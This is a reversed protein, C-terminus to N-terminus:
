SLEGNEAHVPTAAVAAGGQQQDAYWLVWALLVAGTSVAVDALNFTPWRMAGFGIDIFDVVGRASRIRDILNGLAGACVLALALTRPRDGPQTEQYLRWLVYLAGTTLAMFIWRSYPGLHFGFAAGPNYVLVWRLGNGLVPRPPEYAGLAYVAIAKTVLDTLLLFLFVPWFVLGNGGGSATADPSSREM